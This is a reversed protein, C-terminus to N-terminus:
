YALQLFVPLRTPCSAMKRGKISIVSPSFDWLEHAAKRPVTALAVDTAAGKRLIKDTKLCADALGM